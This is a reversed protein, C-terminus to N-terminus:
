NDRKVFFKLQICHTIFTHFSFVGTSFISTLEIVCHNSNHKYLYLVGIHERLERQFGFQKMEQQKSNQNGQSSTSLFLDGHSDSLLSTRPTPYWKLFHWEFNDYLISSAYHGGLSKFFLSTFHRDRQIWSSSVFDPLLIHLCYFVFKSIYVHRHSKM